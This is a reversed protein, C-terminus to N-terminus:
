GAEVDVYEHDDNASEEADASAAVPEDARTSAAAVAATSEAVAAATATTSPASSTIAEVDADDLTWDDVPVGVRESTENIYDRLMGAADDPSCGLEEAVADAVQAATMPAGWTPITTM